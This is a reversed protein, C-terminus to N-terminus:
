YVIIATSWSTNKYVWAADHENLNICGHSGDFNYSSTGSSDSHPFNTHPGYDARWPADHVFYGGLHYLIAYHIPTDPFWYPSSRPEGSKFIVPSRRDQVTWVGPLSPLAQRGTTVYYAKVLKGDQYIRMVQEALSVVMVQGQRLHYHNLMNLDSKHIQNYPTKDQHAAELQHLNFLDNSVETLLASFDAPTRAGALDNDLTSGIGAKMYGNDLQYTKGDYADQYANANGWDAVEKHFKQILFRAQHETLNTQLDALDGDIQKFFAMRAYITTAKTLLQQRNNLLTKYKNTDVGYTHLQQVGSTLVYLKMSGVYPFARLADLLGSQYHSQILASVAEFDSPQVAQQLLTKDRQYEQQSASSTVHALQMNAVMTGLDNLQKSTTVFLNLSQIGSTADSSIAQFDGAYLASSFQVQDQSFQQSITRPASYGQGNVSALTSEFKQLNQQAQVQDQATAAKIAGPVQGILQRYGQAQKLYFNSAQQPQFLLFQSSQSSLQQEQNTINELQFWAIGLNRAHQLAKDLQARSQQARIQTAAGQQQILSSVGYLGLGLVLIGAIIPLYIRRHLFVHDELRRLSLYSTWKKHSIKAKSTDKKPNHPKNAKAQEAAKALALQRARVPSVVYTADDEAEPFIEGVASRKVTPAFLEDEAQKATQINGHDAVEEAQRVAALYLQTSTRLSSRLTVDDENGTSKETPLGASEIQAECHPCLVEDEGIATNCKLCVHQSTSPQKM